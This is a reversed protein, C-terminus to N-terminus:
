KLKRYKSPTMGTEKKFVKTFYNYDKIGVGEAVQSISLTTQELMERAKKVRLDRIYEMIGMGFNSMSIQYLKARSVQFSKCLIESNLDESLNNNIYSDIQFPLDDKKLTAMHHVCVYSALAQLLHAASELYDNSLYKLRGQEKKMKDLPLNLSEIKESVQKWAEESDKVPSVHGFCLYGISIKGLTIAAIVETLGAHCKYIHVGDSEKAVACGIRDSEFCRRKGEDCTRILKCFDPLDEPYALIEMYDDDFVTIRLGTVNYLDKILERLETVNFTSIM